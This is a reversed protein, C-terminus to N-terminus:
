RALIYYKEEETIKNNEFLEVVKIEDVKDCEYLRKMSEVFQRM